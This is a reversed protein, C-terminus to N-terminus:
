GMAFYVQRGCESCRRYSVNTSGRVVVRQRGLFTVWDELLSGDPGRVQGICLDNQITKEGFSFLFDRRGIGVGCGSIFNLPTDDLESEQIAADVKKVNPKPFACGTCFWTKRAEEYAAKVM